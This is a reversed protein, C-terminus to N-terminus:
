LWNMLVLAAEQRATLLERLEKQAESLKRRIQDEEKRANRLADMTQILQEPTINNKEMLKILEVAIKQAKTLESPKKDKWSKDWQWRPISRSDSGNSSIGSSSSTLGMGVTSRSRDRLQRVKELKAKILKWQEETAQLAYKERLFERKTKAVREHFEKLRQERDLGSRSASTQSLAHTAILTILCFLFTIPVIRRRTM